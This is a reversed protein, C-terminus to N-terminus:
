PNSIKIRLFLKPNGTTPVSFVHQPPTGTDTVPHWSGAQLTTSWEAGYTIGSVGGPQTFSLIINSGNKQWQPLQGSSNQKPDLGFAYEVLNAIGDHDYDHTDAGDGSNESNGFHTFRWYEIPSSLGSTDYLEASGLVNGYRGYGGAVLLKNNPLLTATHSYRVDTLTESSMEWKGTGTHFIEMGSLKGGQLDSALGGTALVNGDPLLTATHYFRAVNLSSSSLSFAHQDPTYIETSDLFGAIGNADDSGGAILVTGDPLLTATHSYRAQNLTADLPSFTQTVHDYIEASSLPGTQGYGGAILVDGNPLLTATHSDRPTNLGGNTPSWPNEGAGANVRYIEASGLDNYSNNLGGVVLVDGNNLRTATHWKRPTQMPTGSDRWNGYPPNADPTYIECGALVNNNDSGGTVLVTGNPLLTATHASRAHILDGTNTAANGPLSALSFLVALAAAIRPISKGARGTRHLRQSPIDRTVLTRNM